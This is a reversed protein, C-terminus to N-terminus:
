TPRHACSRPSSRRRTRARALDTRDLSHAVRRVEFTFRDKHSIELRFRGSDDTIAGAGGTAIVAASVIPQDRHDFVTGRVVRPTQAGIVSTALIAVIVRLAQTRM